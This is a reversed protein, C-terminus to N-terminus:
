GGLGHQHTAPNFTVLNRASGLDILTTAGTAPDRYELRPLRAASPISFRLLITRTALPRVVPIRSRWGVQYTGTAGVLQFWRRNFHLSRRQVNNVILSVQVGHLGRPITLHMVSAPGVLREVANPSISGFSTVIRGGLRPATADRVFPQASGSSGHQFAVTSIGIVGGIAAAAWVAVLALRAMRPPSAAAAASSDQFGNM